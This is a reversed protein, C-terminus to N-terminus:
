KQSLKELEYEAARGTVELMFSLSLRSMDLALSDLQRAMVAILLLAEDEYMLDLEQVKSGFALIAERKEPEMMQRVREDLTARRQDASLPEIRQRRGTM